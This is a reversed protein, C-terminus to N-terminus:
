GAPRGDRTRPPSGPPGPSSSRVTAVSAAVVLAMAALARGSLREGLLVFGSGAAAVPSLSMLVGFVRAPVRRLAVLELSFPVLGALVAVVAGQVVVDPRALVAGARLGFPAVLMAAVAMALGLSGVGGGLRGTSRSLLIYGAWAAAAALALAVGAGDLGGGGGGLLVVGGMAVAVWGLDAARRSLVAALGLPGTLEITVAVGLPLREVAAYFSTNMVALVAGFTAITAWERRNRGRVSPRTVVLLVLAAGGQRYLVAGPSGIVTMLRSAFGAGVQVSVMSLGLLWTRDARALRSPVDAGSITVAVRGGHAM